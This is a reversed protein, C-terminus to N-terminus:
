PSGQPTQPKITTSWVGPGGPSMINSPPRPACPHRHRGPGARPVTAGAAHGDCSRFPEGRLGLGLTRSEATAGADVGPRRRTWLRHPRARLSPAECFCPRLHSPALTLGPPPHLPGVLDARAGRWLRGHGPRSPVLCFSARSGPSPTGLVWSHGWRQGCRTGTNPSTM